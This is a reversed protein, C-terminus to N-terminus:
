SLTTATPVVEADAAAGVSSPEGSEATGNSRVVEALSGFAFPAITAFQM